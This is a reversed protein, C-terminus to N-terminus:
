KAPEQKHANQKKFEEIRVQDILHILELYVKRDQKDIDYVDFLDFIGNLNKGLYTGGIYEWEDRLIKYVNLATQVELSFDDLEVPIESELPESGLQQCMDFYQDKTM